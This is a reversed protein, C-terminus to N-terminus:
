CVFKVTGHNYSLLMAALAAPVLRGIELGDNELADNDLGAIDLGAFEATEVLHILHTLSETVSEVKLLVNTIINPRCNKYRQGGILLLPM